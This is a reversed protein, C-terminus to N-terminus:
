LQLQEIGSVEVEEDDFTCHLPAQSPKADTLACPPASGYVYLQNGVPPVFLVDDLRQGPVYVQMTVSATPSETLMANVMVCGVASFVPIM